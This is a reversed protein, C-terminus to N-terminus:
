PVLGADPGPAPPILAADTGTAPPPPPPPLKRKFIAVGLLGGLMAFIPFVVLYIVFPAIYWVSPPLDRLQDLIRGFEPPLDGQPIQDLSEPGAMGTMASFAIGLTAAIIAGIAGALLGTLAGDTATVPVPWREQLLYTTLVGGAVVWLCCCMNLGSVFPLASLVGIFLGGFFAPQLRSPM